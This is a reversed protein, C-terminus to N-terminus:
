MISYGGDVNLTTGTIFRAGDSALFLVAAACDDPQGWRGLATREVIAANRVPDNILPRTLNSEIWGPAIANVRINDGAWAIALSKTLQVIAGKSASYAPIRPSGFYSTMSAINVVSGGSAALHPKFCHTVHFVATLNVAITQNFGAPELESPQRTATGANNVLVDLEVVEAALAEVAGTDQVLLRRHELGDLGEYASRPQTGTVIVRAGAQRFGEALGRGIGNTGGTVLVTRGAFDFTVDAWRGNARQGASDDTKSDTNM